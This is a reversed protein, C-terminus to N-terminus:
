QLLILQLFSSLLVFKYSLKSQFLIYSFALCGIDCNRLTGQENKGLENVDVTEGSKFELTFKDKFVTVKEILQRILQEDYEDITTPQERLFTSMDDISKRLEDRGANEM